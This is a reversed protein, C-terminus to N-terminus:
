KQLRRGALQAIHDSTIIYRNGGAAYLGDLAERFQSDINVLQNRSNTKVTFTKM